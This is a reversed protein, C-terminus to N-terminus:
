VNRFESKNESKIKRNKFEGSFIFVLIHIHNNMNDEYSTDSPQNSVKKREM